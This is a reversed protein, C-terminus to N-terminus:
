PTLRKCLPQRLKSLRLRIVCRRRIAKSAAAFQTVLEDMVKELPPMEKLAKLRYERQM